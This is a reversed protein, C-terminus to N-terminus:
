AKKIRSAQELVTSAEIMVKAIAELHKGAEEGLQRDEMLGVRLLTAQVCQLIQKLLPDIPQVPDNM